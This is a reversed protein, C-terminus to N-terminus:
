VGSRIDELTRREFAIDSFTATCGEGTPSQTLFGVRLNADPHTASLSFYRILEWHEGTDSAHFAYAGSLRAIRLHIPGPRTMANADDSVGKTVVSVIAPEGQPSREFCLKAWSSGSEFILLVGADFTARFGVTVRASLVFDGGVPFLLAPANARAPAGGPDRFLDTERGATLTLGADKVNWDAPEGLWQLPSPLTPLTIPKM